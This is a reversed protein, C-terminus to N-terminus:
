HKILKFIKRKGERSHLTVLYLGSQLYSVNVHVSTSSVINITTITKRGDAGRITLSEWNDELLLNDITFKGNSPNPYLRGGSTLHDLNFTLVNSNVMTGSACSVDSTLVCRVKDLDAVATYDLNTAQAGAINLWGHNATSDQWQYAPNNGGDSVSSTLTTVENDSVTTNGSILIAPQPNNVMVHIPNAYVTDHVLCALNSVLYVDVQDGNMLTSSTYNAGAATVDLANVRWQYIPTSGGNTPSATFTVSTGLCIDTSSASISVSAVITGPAESVTATGTFTCGNADTFMVNHVGTSVATFNNSAQPIGGDLAYSYPGVGTLPTVTISGVSAGCSADTASVSATLNSGQFLVGSLTVTCGNADTIIIAHNGAAVATFINSGQASAGDLSYTYPATGSTAIATITGNNIGPCSTGTTSLIGTIGVGEGISVTITGSCGNVDTFLISHTGSTLGTFQNSTQSSGGDISYSYPATGTSANISISGNSIGPCSTSISNATAAMVTVSLGFTVSNLNGDVICRFLYQNWNGPINSLVLTPSQTGSLNSGNSINTFGTGTNWQWQYSSGTINSVITANGNPCLWVSVLAPSIAIGTTATNTLVPSNYDFYINADNPIISGIALTALPKVRFRIYGHSAPENVNSDPLQIDIFEFTLLNGTRRILAPHSAAIMQVSSAQLQADLEDTIVVTFATDNGTNQFRVLYDIYTGNSVQAPTLTPTSTKDNPDYSGRVVNYTSDSSSQSNYTAALQVKITDGPAAAASVTFNVFFYGYDGPSLPLAPINLTNGSNTVGPLSSSNYTLKSADYRFQMAVPISTTGANEYNIRYQEQRGARAVKIPIINVAVSDFQTTPQLAYNAYVMTDTSNFNYVSNAPVAQYFPPNEVALMNTGVVGYVAFFGDLNSYGNSSGANVSVNARYNEGPDKLGNSNNDYFIRGTILPIATCQHSNNIVTCLPLAPTINYTPVYPICDVLTGTVDVSLMSAPLHPVCAIGNAGANLYQLTQPLYIPVETFANFYINLYTLGAPLVPLSSIGASLLDGINGFPACGYMPIDCYHRCRSCDLYKLTTPLSTISTLGNQGCYLYELTPPLVPLELMTYHDGADQSACNLFKLGTPLNNLAGLENQSCDLYKLTAPLPPLSYIPSYQGPQIDTAHGIRALFLTDLNAPMAPLIGDYRMSNTFDLYHLNPPFVANLDLDNERCILKTVSNPCGAPFGTRSCNLTTINPPYQFGNLYCDSIDLYQVSTFYQLGTMDVSGAGPNNPDGPWIDAGTHIEFHDGAATAACPINLMLDGNVDTNIFCSPYRSLLTDRFEGLPLSVDQASILTNVFLSFTLLFLLKRM